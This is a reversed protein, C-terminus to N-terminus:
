DQEYVGTSDGVSSRRHRWSDLSFKDPKAALLALAAGLLGVNKWVLAFDLIVFFLVFVIISVLASLPVMLGVLLATGLLLELYSQVWVFAAPDFPLWYLSSVLDIAEDRNTCVGIASEPSVIKSLGSWFFVFGLGLRLFLPLYPSLKAAFNEWM